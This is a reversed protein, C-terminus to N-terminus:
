ESYMEKLMEDTAKRASFGNNMLVTAIHSQLNFQQKLTTLKNRAAMWSEGSREMCGKELMRDIRVMQIAAAVNIAVYGGAALKATKIIFNKM